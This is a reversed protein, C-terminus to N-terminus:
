LLILFILYTGPPLLCLIITDLLSSWLSIGCKEGLGAPSVRFNLFPSMFEAEHGEFNQHGTKHQMKRGQLAGGPVLSEALLSLHGKPLLYHHSDYTM